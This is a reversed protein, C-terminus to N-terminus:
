NVLGHFNLSEETRTLRGTRDYYAWRDVAGDNAPTRNLGSSPLHTLFINGHTWRGDENIDITFVETALSPQTFAALLVRLFLPTKM